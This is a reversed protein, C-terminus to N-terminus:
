KFSGNLSVSFIKLSCPLDFFNNKISNFSHWMLLLSSGALQSHPCAPVFHCKRIGYGKIQAAGLLHWKLHIKRNLIIQDLVVSVPTGLLKSQLQNWTCGLQCNLNMMVVQLCTFGALKFSSESRERRTKRFSSM